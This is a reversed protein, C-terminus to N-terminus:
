DRDRQLVSEGVESIKDLKDDAQHVECDEDLVIDSMQRESMVLRKMILKM